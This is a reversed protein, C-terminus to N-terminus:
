QMADEVELEGVRYRFVPAGDIGLRYGKFVYGAAAGYSAPWPSNPTALRAFPMWTPLATVAEGLPKVPPMTREEWNSTADLFRGRWVLAWHVEYADFAAHMKEPFGV